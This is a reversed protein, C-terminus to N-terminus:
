VSAMCDPPKGHSLVGRLQSADEDDLGFVDPDIQVGRRRAELTLRLHYSPPIGRSVWNHVGREDEYGAWKALHSFGGLGEILDRITHVTKM